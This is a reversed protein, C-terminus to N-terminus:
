SLLGGAKQHQLEVDVEDRDGCGAVEVIKGGGPATAASIAGRSRGSTIVKIAM